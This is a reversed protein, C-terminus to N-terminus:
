AAKRRRVFAGMGALGLAMLGYTAPEPVPSVTGPGDISNTFAGFDFGGEFGTTVLTYSAGATLTYSFGSIGVAGLDDNGILGNALPTAPDFSSYLFLFNDWGSATSLFAYSGTASVTFTLAHYNDDAGFASLGGFGALPRHFTDLGTTDGSYSYTAAQASGLLALSAVAVSLVSLKM